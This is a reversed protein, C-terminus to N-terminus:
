RRGARRRRYLEAASAWIARGTVVLFALLVALVVFYPVSPRWPRLLPVLLWVAGGGVAGCWGLGLWLDRTRRQALPVSPGTRGTM